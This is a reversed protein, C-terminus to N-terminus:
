VWKLNDKGSITLHLRFSINELGQKVTPKSQIDQLVAYKQQPTFVRKAQPVSKAQM